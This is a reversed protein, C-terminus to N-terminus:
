EGIESERWFYFIRYTRRVSRVALKMGRPTKPLDKGALFSLNSIRVMRRVSRVALKIGRPSPSKPLDKGALVSLDMEADADDRMM